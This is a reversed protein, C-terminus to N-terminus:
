ALVEERPAADLQEQWDFRRSKIEERWAPAYRQVAFLGGTSDIGQDAIVAYYLVNFREGRAGGIQGLVCDTTSIMLLKEGDVDHAWGPYLKDLVKAAASVDLLETM